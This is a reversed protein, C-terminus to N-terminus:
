NLILMGGSCISRVSEVAITDNREKLFIFLSNLMSPVTLIYSIQKEKLTLALYGFDVNGRSHLMVLTGGIILTGVIDLYHM